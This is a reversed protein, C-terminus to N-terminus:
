KAIAMIMEVARVGAFHCCHQHGVCIGAKGSILALGTCFILAASLSCMHLVPQQHAKEQKRSLFTQLIGNPIVTVPVALERPYRRKSLVGKSCQESNVAPTLPQNM